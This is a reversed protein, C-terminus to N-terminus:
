LPPADSPIQTYWIKLDIPEPEPPPNLVDEATFVRFEDLPIRGPNRGQVFQEIVVDIDDSPFPENGFPLHGHHASCLSFRIAGMM